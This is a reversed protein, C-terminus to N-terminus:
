DVDSEEPIGLQVRWLRQEAGVFLEGPKGFCLSTCGGPIEILGLPVGGPSWIEVGDGCAAYVNGMADCQVATPVGSMAYAFVRKNALFPQEHRTIIDWAYITASRTDDFEGNPLRAGIDTVYLVESEGARGAGAPGLGIGGPRDLGDAMVRLVGTEPHLRYVQEPLRPRGRIEAEFAARSDTFWLGPDSGRGNSSNGTAVQQPGNFPRGAFQTTLPVPPRSHAMHFLGGTDPSLTGQSCYVLAGRYACAGAPMPMSAPPRLKTWETGVVPAPLPLGHHHSGVSSPRGADRHDDGLGALLTPSSVASPARLLSVRSILIVPLQSRNTSQLLDSTLYLEDQASLYVCASHFFPNRSTSASSILLAHTPSTGILSAFSPHYQKLSIIDADQRKQQNPRSRLDVVEIFTKVTKIGENRVSTM